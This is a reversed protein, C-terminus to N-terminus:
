CLAVSNDIIKRVKLLAEEGRAKPRKKDRNTM